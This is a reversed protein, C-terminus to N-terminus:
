AIHWFDIDEENFSNIWQDGLMTSATYGAMTAWVEHYQESRRVDANRLAANKFNDYNIEAASLKM